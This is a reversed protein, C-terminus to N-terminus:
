ARFGRAAPLVIYRQAPGRGERRVLGLRVLIQLDYQATRMSIDKGAMDQYEQRSISGLEVIQPLLRALRANLRPQADEAVPMAGQDESEAPVPQAVPSEATEAAEGHPQRSDARAPPCSLKGREPRAIDGPLTDPGLQINEAFILGNECFALARTLCNQLERVNGPWHYEQLKRLAGRSLRPTPLGQSEAARTLFFVALLPLDSKRRRLPPTRITIVALRYYLDERFSGEQADQLLEANTAAIIRTDFPVDEDSGLPRIMRTSLARLLAQQVKPAANGIEDLMLTGGEATLFAGKRPQRAETFAGKVHGFLTDMLLNEDLAGCNITIFPGNARPSAQHIAASVLEKGTGTEGILLVPLPTLSMKKLITICRLLAPSQGVVDDFTYKARYGKHLLQSRLENQRNEADNFRQVTAFAGICADGRLVPAVAVNINVGGASVVRAPQPAKEKLCRAFPLFPYVAGAPRHLAEGCPIGTIEELKRNCAFVEGRENVGVIGEDLIEMLMEFQSELRLGRAFVRDFSYTNTAVERQYQEFRESELLEELGLRLAAEIMTSSDCVRQGIDIIEKAGAPVYRTEQPTIVFDYQGMDPEPAGPHYLDFVLQNVGLQNLRTVAERCMKDSLNVFLARKGAPLSQLRRVVDWRLTVHIEMMEGDIPVYQHLDGLSDFADTTVMYLDYRRPMHEISGDRVSYSCVTIREGFLEQVQQAYFQGAYADLSIVAVDQKM